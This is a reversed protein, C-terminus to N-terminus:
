NGGLNLGPGRRGEGNGLGRGDDDGQRWWGQNEGLGYLGSLGGLILGGIIINRLTHDEKEEEEERKGVPILPHEYPYDSSRLGSANEVGRKTPTGESGFPIAVACGNGAMSALTLYAALALGGLRSPRRDGDKNVTYDLSSGSVINDVLKDTIGSTRLGHYKLDM